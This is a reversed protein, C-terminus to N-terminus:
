GKRRVDVRDIRAVRQCDGLAVPRHDVDNWGLHQGGNRLGCLTDGLGHNAFQLRVAHVQKLSVAFAGPLADRVQVDM